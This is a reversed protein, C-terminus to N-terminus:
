AKRKKRITLYVALGGVVAVGALILVVILLTNAGADASTTTTVTAPPSLATMQVIAYYSFHTTEFVLWGDELRANMDTMTETETDFWFVRLDGSMGDPVPIRVTITGTFGTIPQGSQDILALDYVALVIGSFKEDTNVLDTIDDMSINGEDTEIQALSVNVSTVGSPVSAQSLDFRIGTSPHVLVPIVNVQVDCTSPMYNGMDEPTFIAQYKGSASVIQDPDAWSFHGPVSGAGGSLASTSLKGIVGIDTALPLATVITPAKDVIITITQTAANYRDDEARTATIVATGAKQITVRGTASNVSAVGRGSTVAYTVVGTSQGGTASVTFEADGYTKVVRSGAFGFGSQAAKAVSITLTASAENCTADSPSLVRIVATGPKLVTVSGTNEDVTVVDSGSIVTFTEDRISLKNITQLTFVSDGYTKNVVGNAIAYDAGDAFAYGSQNYKLISFDSMLGNSVCTYNDDAAANYTATLDYEGAPVSRWTVTARYSGDDFIPVNEAILTDGYKFTVTGAPLDVADSVTATLVVDSGAMATDPVASLTLAIEKPMIQFTKYLTDSYNNQGTISVTATAVNTNGSYSVSYDRTSMLTTSGDRVIVAPTKAAGSYIQDSIDDATFGTISKPKIVFNKVAVADNYYDNGPLTANLSYSGANVPAAVSDTVIVGTGREIGSYTYTVTGETLVGGEVEIEEPTFTVTEGYNFEKSAPNKYTLPPAQNTKLILVNPSEFTATARIQGNYGTYSTSGATIDTTTSGEYAPLYLYLWGDADTRVDKTGYSIMEGGQLLSLVSVAANDADSLRTVTYYVNVPTEGGTTPTCGISAKM